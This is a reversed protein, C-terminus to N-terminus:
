VFLGNSIDIGNSYKLRTVYQKKSGIASEIGVCRQVLHRIILRSSSLSREFSTIFFRDHSMSSNPWQGSM